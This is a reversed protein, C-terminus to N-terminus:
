ISVLAATQSTEEFKRQELRRVARKGATEIRKRLIGDQRVGRRCFCAIRDRHAALEDAGGCLCVKQRQEHAAPHGGVRRTAIQTGHAESTLGNGRDGRRRNRKRRARDPFM